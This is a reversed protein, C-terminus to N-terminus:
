FSCYTQFVHFSTSSITSHKDAEITLFYYQGNNFNWISPVGSKFSIPINESFLNSHNILSSAQQESEIVTTGMGTYNAESCSM